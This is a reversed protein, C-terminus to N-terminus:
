NFSFGPAPTAGKKSKPPEAKEERRVDAKPAPLAPAVAGLAPTATEPAAMSPKPRSGGSVGGGLKGLLVRELDTPAQYGDTPLVIDNANVPKVLYPTVVIVLETENRRFGNSRFLAGLVPVDGLGPTKEISNNHDNQLLGATMFSQGSGLEITTETRRTSIGQIVTNNLQVSGAATLQSVEARLRLSIRGDALVTPTYTLSIGYPKYEVSVAGQGQSILIPVEGGVLFTGTEGSMATLNPTALTSVQGVTEGLDLAALFNTGLARGALGLTSRFAGTALTSSKYAQGTSPDIAYTITGANGSNSQVITGTTLPVTPSASTAGLGDSTNLRVGINKIFSRSVEAFKVQLNVQLPTATKLHSLVKTADGVYAQVLRAAEEADSPSLVVGTLLVLGNMPTATIQAEPMALNLMQQISDFNNGVRVTASYVVVGGKGTASITTEGPGKGFVYIQTPSKVQVDAIADSAVFIDTIPRPLTILRGRGTNVQLVPTGATSQAPAQSATGAMTAAMMAAALPWGIPTNVFRM